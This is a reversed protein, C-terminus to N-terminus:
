FLKMCFCYEYLKDNVIVFDTCSNKRGNSWTFQHDVIVMVFWQPSIRLILDKLQQKTM